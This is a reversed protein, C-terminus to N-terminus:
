LAFALIHSSLEFIAIRRFPTLSLSLAFSSIYSSSRVLYSVNTLDRYLSLPYPPELCPFEKPLEPLSGVGRIPSGISREVISISRTEPM